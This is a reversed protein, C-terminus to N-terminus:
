DIAPNSSDIRPALRSELSVIAKLVHWQTRRYEDQLSRVIGSNMDAWIISFIKGVPSKITSHTDRRKSGTDTTRRYQYLFLLLRLQFTSQLM